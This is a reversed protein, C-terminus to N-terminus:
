IVSARGHMGINIEKAKPSFPYYCLRAEILIMTFACGCVQHHLCKACGEDLKSLQNCSM